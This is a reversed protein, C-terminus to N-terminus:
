AGDRRNGARLFRVIRDYSIAYHLVVIVGFVVGLTTRGAAILAATAGGFVAAEILLRVWGPVAVVPPGGDGPM